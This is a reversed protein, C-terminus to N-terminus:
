GYLEGLGENGNEEEEECSRCLTNSMPKATPGFGEGCRICVPWYIPADATM